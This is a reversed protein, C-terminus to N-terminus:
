WYCMRLKQNPKHFLLSLTSIEPQLILDAAIQSFLCLCACFCFRVAGLQVSSSCQSKPHCPGCLGDPPAPECLSSPVASLCCPMLRSPLTGLWPFLLLGIVSSNNKPLCTWSTFTTWCSRQNARTKVCAIISYKNPQINKFSAGTVHAVPLQRTSRATQM